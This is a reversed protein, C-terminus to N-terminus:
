AYDLHSNILNEIEAIFKEAPAVLPLVDGETIVALDDYDGTLRMDFMKQYAQSLEKTIIGKKVYYLGLLTKVGSHTRTVHEDNILLAIAAYFCAYYLRNVASHWRNNQISIRADLLTDKARELRYKVIIKREEESLKM